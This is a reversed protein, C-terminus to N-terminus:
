KKRKLRTGALGALGTGFLLMSAPIPVPLVRFQLDSAPAIAAHLYAAGDSYPNDDWNLAVGWQPTDNDLTFTYQKGSEFVLSSVDMDVWGDYNSDTLIFDQSYLLADNSFIGEGQWLNMSFSLDNLDNYPGIIWAGIRDIHNDEATFSQGIIEHAEIQVSGTNTDQVIAAAHAMGVTTFTICVMALGAVKEKRMTSEGKTANNVGVAGGRRVRPDAAQPETTELLLM